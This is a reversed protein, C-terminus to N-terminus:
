TIYKERFLVVNLMAGVLLGQALFQCLILLIVLWSFPGYLSEFDTFYTLYIGFFTIVFSMMFGGVVAGPLVGRFSMRRNPLFKYILLLTLGLGMWYLPFILANSFFSSLIPILAILMIIFAMWLIGMLSAIFSFVLNQLFGMSEFRYLHNFLNSLAQVGQSIQVLSIVLLTIESFNFTPHLSLLYDRILTNLPIPLATMLVIELGSKFAPWSALLTTIIFGTPVLAMVMFYGLSIPYILHERFSWLRYVKKILISHPIM